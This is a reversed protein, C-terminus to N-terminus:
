TGFEFDFDRNIDTLDYGGSTDSGDNEGDIKTLKAHRKAESTDDQPFYEEESTSGPMEMAM